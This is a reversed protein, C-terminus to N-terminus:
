RVRAKMMQERLQEVDGTVYQQFIRPDRHGSLRCAAALNMGGNALASCFSARLNHFSKTSGPLAKTRIRRFREQLRAGGGKADVIYSGALTPMVYLTEPPKNPWHEYRPEENLVLLRNLVQGRRELPILCPEKTKKRNFRLVAGDIDVHAWQLLCTDCMSTGCEWGLRIAWAMDPDKTDAVMLLRFYESETFPERVEHPEPEPLRVSRHPSKEIVGQRECWAFFRATVAVAQRATQDGWTSFAHKVWAAYKASDVSDGTFDFFKTLWKRNSAITSAARGTFDDSFYRNIYAKM